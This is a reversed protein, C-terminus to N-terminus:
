TALWIQATRFVHKSCGCCCKVDSVSFTQKHHGSTINTAEEAQSIQACDKYLNQNGFLCPSHLVSASYAQLSFNLICLARCKYYCM